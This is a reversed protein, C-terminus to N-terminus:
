ETKNSEMGNKVGGKEKKPDSLLSVFIFGLIGVFCISFANLFKYDSSEIFLIALNITVLSFMSVICILVVSYISYKANEWFSKVMKM